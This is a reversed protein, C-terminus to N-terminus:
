RPIASSRGAKGLQLCLDLLDSTEKLRAAVAEGSLDVKADLRLEAHLSGTRLSAERLRAEIAASSMDVSV